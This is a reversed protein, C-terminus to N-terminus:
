GIVSNAWAIFDTTVEDRNSANLMEHRM